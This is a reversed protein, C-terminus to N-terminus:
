GRRTWPIEESPATKTEGRSASAWPDKDMYGASRQRFGSSVVDWRGRAQEQLFWINKKKMTPKRLLNRVGVERYCQERKEGNIEIYRLSLELNECCARHYIQAVNVPRAGNM